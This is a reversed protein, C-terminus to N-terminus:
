SDTSVLRKVSPVAYGPLLHRESAWRRRLRPRGDQVQCTRGGGSQRARSHGTSAEAVDEECGGHGRREKVRAVPIPGHGKLIFAEGEHTITKGVWETTPGFTAILM